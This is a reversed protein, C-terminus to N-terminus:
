GAVPAAAPEVAEGEPREFGLLDNPTVDLARAFAALRESGPVVKGAEVLSVYSENTKLAAALERMVWGKALRQARIREGIGM